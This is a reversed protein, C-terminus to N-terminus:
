VSKDPQRTCGSANKRTADVWLHVNLGGKGSGLLPRENMTTESPQQADLLQRETPLRATGQGRM